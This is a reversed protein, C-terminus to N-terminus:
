LVMGERRWERGVCRKWGKYAAGARLVGQVPVVISGAQDEVECAFLPALQTVGHDTGLVEQEAEHALATGGALHQRLEAAGEFRETVLNLLHDAAAVTERAVLCRGDRRAGPADHLQRAGLRAAEAAVHYGGLVDQEADDALTVADGVAYQLFQRTVDVRHAPADQRCGVGLVLGLSDVRREEVLVGAVEGVVGTVALEVGDDAAGFLDAPDDLDERAAGLVVRHEDTLRADALRGDDFPQRLRYDLPAHRGVQEVHAHQGDVEAVYHCAGLVAALELLAEPLNDLLQAVRADHGEDVFQVRQHSGASGLAGEVRGVDELRGQRAALDLHYAGGGCALVM